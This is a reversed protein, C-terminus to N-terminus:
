GGAPRPRSITTPECARGAPLSQRMQRPTAGYSKKMLRRLATADGYGVRHAVEEVSLGSGELLARACGLRISQILALPSRGTAARVHRALTRPSVAAAEALAQVTPTGPLTARVQAEIRSLLDHQAHLMSTDIYPSQLQRGDLVLVRAIAESLSAGFRRRLLWLMLDTQAFAAGATVMPGDEVVMRSEDVTCAPALRRLLPALWWSVTARRGDLLGGRALALVSSCSAAVTSGREAARRLLRLAAQVGAHSLLEELRRAGTVGMGPVVWAPRGPPLRRPLPQAELWLGNSLPVRAEAASVVLWRPAPLGLRGAMHRAAELIDLTSAVSTAHAGPLLLVVFDHM